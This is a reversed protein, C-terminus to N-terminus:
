DCVLMLVYTGFDSLCKCYDVLYVTLTVINSAAEFGRLWDEIIKKLEGNNYLTYLRRPAETAECLMYLKISNGPVIGSIKIYPVLERSRPSAELVERIVTCIAPERQKDRDSVTIEVTVIGSVSLFKSYELM